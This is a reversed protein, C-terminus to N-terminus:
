LSFTQKSRQVPHAELGAVTQVTYGHTGYPGTNGIIYLDQSVLKGDGDVVTTFTLTQPHRTRSAIFEESRDLELRVPRRTAQALHGVIDEILMEQKAGFGGGIRPKVVRIDKIDRDLLPAVM